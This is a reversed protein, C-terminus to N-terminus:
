SPFKWQGGSRELNKWYRQRNLMYHGITWGMDRAKSGRRNVMFYLHHMLDAHTLNYPGKITIATRWKTTGSVKQSFASSKYFELSDKWKYPGSGDVRYGRFLVRLEIDQRWFEPQDSIRIINGANVELRCKRGPVVVAAMSHSKWRGNIWYQLKISKVRFGRVSMATDVISMKM